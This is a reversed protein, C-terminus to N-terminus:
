RKQISEKQDVILPVEVAVDEPIGPILSNKNPINLVFRGQNGNVLADIFQVHQEGSKEDPPFEQLLNASKDSAFKFNRNTLAKMYNKQYWAWGIDSDAGKWPEGFWKKKAELNYHYKWSGNRTSDGIPMRGYFKYMDMAAPSMQDDFPDKPKWKKSEEKIWRDILPYADKGDYLFRTLWINNPKFDWAM